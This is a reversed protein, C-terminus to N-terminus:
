LLIVFTPPINLSKWSLGYGINLSKEWFLSRSSRCVGTHRVCQTGGGGGRPNCGSIEIKFLDTTSYLRLCEFRLVIFPFNDRLVNTNSYIWIIWDLCNNSHCIRLRLCEFRLVIFPFNDRLVNTNSYIWIIWDLCNNSHCIRTWFTFVKYM